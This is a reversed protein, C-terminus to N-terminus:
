FNVIKRMTKFSVVINSGDKEQKGPGMTSMIPIIKKVASM